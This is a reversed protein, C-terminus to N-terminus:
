RWIFDYKTIPPNQPLVVTSKRKKKEEPSSFLPTTLLLFRHKKKRIHRVLSSFIIIVNATVKIRVAYHNGHINETIDQTSAEETTFFYLLLVFLTPHMYIYIYIYFHLFTNTDNSKISPLTGSRKRIVRRRLKRKQKGSQHRIRETRGLNISM